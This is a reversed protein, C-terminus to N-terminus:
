RKASKKRFDVVYSPLPRPHVRRQDEECAPPGQNLDLHSWEVNEESELPSDGGPQVTGTPPTHGTHGQHLRDRALSLLRDLKDVADRQMSPVAHSYVDLTIAIRTHGLREQVVKPHVDERLLLTAATHRLDHFRIHPLGAKRLLPEFTKRRLNSKRLPSGHSDCFVLAALAGAALMRNRHAILTAVAIQPLAVRRRGANTKPEVLALRGAVEQLQRQVFITGSTLDIDEWKLGLLEGQRMGTTIALVFLAELRTGVAAAFLRAVDDPSLVQSPKRPASPRDVDLMINYSILRWRAAKKLASFLRAHALQQMRASVGDGQMDSYMMQVQVAKLKSLRIGGLRPNVHIRIVGEYLKYTSERIKPKSVEELWRELFEALRPGHPEVTSGDLM